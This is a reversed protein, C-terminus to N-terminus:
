DASVSPLVYYGKRAYVRLKRGDKAAEIDITRFRSEHTLIAPKYAVLYRSHIFEELESLSHALNRVSGTAFASGGTHEALAKLARDGLITSELMATSVYRVDSTSITYVSVGDREATEIAEKLTKKSSNDQGDSIVVLVRAVPQTEQREALKDAAFAVGDWLATGGAPVLSHVGDSIRAGDSTFDELVRVTNSVGVAFALDDNGVLIKKMFEAASQQEFSFRKNVSSSADVVLGLRLPLQEESRFAVISAPAKGDDRVRIEAQNLSRVPKGHDTAVFFVAVEDVNSHLTWGAEPRPASVTTPQESTGQPKAERCSECIAEAETIQAEQKAAEGRIQENLAKEVERQRSTQFDDEAVAAESAASGKAPELELKGLLDRAGVAADSKSDEQLFVHLEAIANPINKQGEWAAAAYFHVMAHGPDERGHVKQATGIAGEYDRNMLQSYALISLVKLDLPALAAAKQEALEASGYHKLELEARGLSFYSNPMRNDLIVAQAFEDRAEENKGVALYASGLGQHAAVFAPYLDIAATFQVVAPQYDKRYLAEYGKEFAQRAKAPAKADLKSSMLHPNMLPSSQQDGWMLMRSNLQTLGSASVDFPATGSRTNTFKSDPPGSIGPGGLSQAPASFPMLGLLFFSAVWRQGRGM